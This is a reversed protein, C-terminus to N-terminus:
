FQLFSFGITLIIFTLFFLRAEVSIFTGILKSAETLMRKANVFKLLSIFSFGFDTKEPNEYRLFTLLLFFLCVSYNNSFTSFLQLTINSFRMDM